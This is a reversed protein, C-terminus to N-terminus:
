YAISRAQQVRRYALDVVLGRKEAHAGGDLIICCHSSATALAKDSRIAATAPM